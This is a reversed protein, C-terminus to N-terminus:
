HGWNILSLCNCLDDSPLKLQSWHAAVNVFLPRKFLCKWDICSPTFYAQLWHSWWVAVSPLKVIWILDFCSPTFYEQLWHSLCNVCCDLRDVWILEFCENIYFVYFNFIWLISGKRSLFHTSPLTSPQSGKTQFHM